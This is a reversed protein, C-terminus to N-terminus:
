RARGIEIKAPDSLDVPVGLSGRVANAFGEPDDIRFVGDFKERGLAPDLIVLQRRNYRNFEAAAEAIPQDVFDVKGSRWALARDVSALSAPPQVIGADNAVFARQGAELRVMNGEAGAAWAEVVGETVLVNAGHELRRVSFATGVARVRIRGAEVIFPRAADKAVQFFAEGEEIRVAREEKALAVEIRSATNIAATSGDALPVRRIEGVETEFREPASLFVIGGAVSAALAAGGGALIGRRSFWGREPQEIHDDDVVDGDDSSTEAGVNGLAEWMAEAELLAGGHRPDSALWEELDAEDSGDWDPQEMRMVWRWAQDDREFRNPQSM